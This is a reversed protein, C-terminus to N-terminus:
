ADLKAFRTAIRQRLGLLRLTRHLPNL